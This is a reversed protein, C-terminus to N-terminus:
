RASGGFFLDETDAVVAIPVEKTQRLARCLGPATGRSSRAPGTRVSERAM